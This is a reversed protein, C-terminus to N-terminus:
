FNVIISCWINIILNGTEYLLGPQRKNNKAWVQTDADKLCLKSKIIMKMRYFILSYSNHDESLKLTKSKNLISANARVDAPLSPSFMDDINVVLSLTVYAKTIQSLASQQTINVVLSIVTIM